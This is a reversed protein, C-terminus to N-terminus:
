VPLAVEEHNFFQWPFYTGAFTERTPLVSAGRFVNGTIAARRQAESEPLMVLSLGSGATTDNRMINGQVTARGVQYLMAVAGSRSDCTMRNMGIIVEGAPEPPEPPERPEPPPAWVLLAAGSNSNSEIENGSVHLILRGQTVEELTVEEVYVLLERLSTFPLPGTVEMDDPANAGSPLPYARAIAGGEGLAPDLRLTQLREIATAASAGDIHSGINEIRASLASDSVLWADTSLLLVGSGCADVRNAEVRIRRNDGHFVAAAATLGKFANGRVVADDLRAPLSWAAARVPGTSYPTYDVITTAPAHLCGYYYKRFAGAPPAEVVFQNDQVELGRVNGAIFLGAAFAFDESAVYIENYQFVCDRITIDKSEVGNSSVLRVGVAVLLTRLDIEEESMTYLSSPTFYGFSAGAGEFHVRQLIFSLGRLTVSSTDVLVVLGDVFDHQFSTNARLVASNKICGEITLGAHDSGLRLPANLIYVGPLLCIRVAVGSDLTPIFGDILEQLGAGGDVDEPKVTVTCCGGRRRTLEVLNDFHQRCDEVIVLGGDTLRVVGLPCIWQRPGDPPQPGETYREPFLKTPAAPRLAIMWYDGKVFFDEPASLTVQLGTDGIPTAEDPTFDLQEEWVRVFLASTTIAEPYGDPLAVGIKITKDVPNYQAKVQATVGDLAAIYNDDGLDASAVLVEVWQDIRPQHQADVPSSALTLVSTDTATDITVKTVRYLSSANDYGWLIQNPSCVKVRILQNEAGLYGAQATPSCEDPLPSPPVFTAALTAKSGIRMTKPDFHVGGLEEFQELMHDFASECTPAFPINFRFFRQQLRTRQATDPGGLAVERLRRDEVASVEREILLLSVQSYASSPPPANDLWDLQKSYFAGPSPLFVRMGGVYMTGPGIHVDQPAGEEPAQISLKYGDDPTGAPGVFDLAEKRLEETTIEQAENLDAEIVARGQQAIVRRYQRGEDYTRRAIDSGM